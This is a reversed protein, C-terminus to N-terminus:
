PFSPLFLLLLGLAGTYVRATQCPLPNFPFCEPSEDDDYQATRSMTMTSMRALAKILTM